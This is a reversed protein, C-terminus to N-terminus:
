NSGASPEEDKDQDDRRRKLTVVKGYSSLLDKNSNYAKLLAKYLNKQVDFRDIFNINLDRYLEGNDKDGQEEGMTDDDQQNEDEETLEYDPPTSFTQTFLIMEKRIMRIQENAQRKKDENKLEDMIMMTTMVTMSRMKKRTREKISLGPNKKVRQDTNLYMPFRHNTVLKKM